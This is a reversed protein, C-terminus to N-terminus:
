FCEETKSLKTFSQPKHYRMLSVASVVVPIVALLVNGFFKRSGSHRNVDKLRLRFTAGTIIRCSEYYCCEMLNSWRPTINTEIFCHNGWFVTIYLYFRIKPNGVGGNSVPTVDYLYCLCMGLLVRLTWVTFVTPKHSYQCILTTCHAATRRTTVSQSKLNSIFAKLLM